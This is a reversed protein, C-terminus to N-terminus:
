FSCGYSSDALWSGLTASMTSDLYTTSNLFGGAGSADLAASGATISATSVYNAPYTGTATYYASDFHGAGTFIRATLNIGPM